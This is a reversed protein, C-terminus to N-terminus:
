CSEFGLRSLAETLDLASFPKELTEDAGLGEANRLYLEAEIAGGGSIAIIKAQRSRPAAARRIKLIFDIGDAAPMLIDTVILSFDAHENYISAAARGD